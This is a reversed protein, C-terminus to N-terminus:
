SSLRRMALVALTCDSPVLYSHNDTGNRLAALNFSDTASAAKSSTWLKTSPHSVHDMIVLLKAPMRDEVVGELTVLVSGVVSVNEPQIFISRQLIHRESM